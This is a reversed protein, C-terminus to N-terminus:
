IKQEDIDSQVNGNSDIILFDSNVDLHMKQMVYSVPLFKTEESKDINKADAIINSDITEGNMLKRLLEVRKDKKQMYIAKLSDLDQIMKDLKLFVYISKNDQYKQEIQKLKKLKEITTFVYIPEKKLQRTIKLM